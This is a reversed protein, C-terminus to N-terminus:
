FNANEKFSANHKSTSGLDLAVHSQYWKHLRISSRLDNIVRSPNSRMNVAYADILPRLKPLRDHFGVESLSFSQYWTSVGRELSLWSALIISNSAENWALILKMSIRLSEHRIDLSLVGHVDDDFCLTPDNRSSLFPLKDAKTQSKMRSTIQLKFEDWILAAYDLNSNEEADIRVNNTSIGVQKDKPVLEEETKMPLLSTARSM